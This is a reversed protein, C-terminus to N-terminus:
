HAPDRAHGGAPRFRANESALRIDCAIALECGGGLAYGNVAAIPPKECTEVEEDGHESALEKRLNPLTESRKKTM